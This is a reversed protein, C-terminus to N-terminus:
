RFTPKVGGSEPVEQPSGTAPAPTSPIGPVPKPAPMAPPVIERDESLLGEESRREGLEPRRLPVSFIKEDMRLWVQGDTIRYVLIRAQPGGRPMRLYQGEEYSRGNIVALSPNGLLVSSLRFASTDLAAQQIVPANAAPKIWGIPIFPARTGDALTFASRKKLEYRPKPTAEGSKADPKKEDQAQTIGALAFLPLFFLLRNM